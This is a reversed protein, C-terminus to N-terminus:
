IEETCLFRFLDWEESSLISRVLFFFLIFSSIPEMLGAKTESFYGM